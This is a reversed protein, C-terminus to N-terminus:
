DETLPNKRLLIMVYELQNFNVVPAVKVEQFMGRPTNNVRTVRGVPIGKPFVGSLGSTVILDGNRIDLNKMVYNFRYNNGNGRIIGQARCHQILGDVASNPDIGMLVKARDSSVFLIQGVIGEVTIVPMGKRIGDNEGRDIIITRFWDSPDHGIIRATLRPSKVRKKLGLLKKLRVNLAAAESFDVIERRCDSLARKLRINEDRVGRLNIYDNWTETIGSIVATAASQGVGIIELTIKRPIDAGRRTFVPMTILAVFGLILITVALNKIKRRQRNRRRM